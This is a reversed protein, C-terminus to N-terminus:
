FPLEDEKPQERRTGDAAEGAGETRYSAATGGGSEAGAGDFLTRPAQALPTLVVIDYARLDNFWRSQWEHANGDFRVEVEDGVQAGIDKNFVSFVFTEPFKGEDNRVVFEQTRWEKGSTKSVGSKEPLIAQIIGKFTM